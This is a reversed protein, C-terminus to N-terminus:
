PKGKRTRNPQPAVLESLLTDPTVGLGRCLPVIQWLRPEPRGREIKSVTASVTECRAALEDPSLEAILRLDRVREGFRVALVARAAAAGLRDGAAGSPEQPTPDRRDAM